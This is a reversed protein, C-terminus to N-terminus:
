RPFDKRQSETAAQGALNPAQSPPRGPGKTPNYGAQWTLVDNFDSVPVGMLASLGQLQWSSLTPKDNDYIFNIAATICATATYAAIDPFLEKFVDAEVPTLAGSDLLDFIYKVDNIINCAWMFRSKDTTPPEVERAVLGRSLVVAPQNKKLYYGIDLFATYFDLQLSPDLRTMNPHSIKPTQLASIVLDYDALTFEGPIFKAPKKAEMWSKIRNDVYKQATLAQNIQAKTVVLPVGGFYSNLGVIGTLWETVEM